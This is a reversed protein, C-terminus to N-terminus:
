ICMTYISTDYKEYRRYFEVLFLKIPRAVEDGTPLLKGFGTPDGKFVEASRTCTSFYEKIVLLRCFFSFFSLPSFVM